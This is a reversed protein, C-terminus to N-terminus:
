SDFPTPDEYLSEEEYLGNEKFFEINDDTLRLPKGDDGMVPCGDKDLLYGNEDMQLTMSEDSDEMRHQNNNDGEKGIVSTRLSDLATRKLRISQNLQSANSQNENAEPEEEIVVKQSNTFTPEKRLSRRGGMMYAMMNDDTEDGPRDFDEYGRIESINVDFKGEQGNEAEGKKQPQEEMFSDLEMESEHQSLEQLPQGFYNNKLNNFFKDKSDLNNSQKSLSSANSMFNTNRSATTDSNMFAHEVRKEITDVKSLYESQHRRQRVVDEKILDLEYRITDMRSNMSENLFNIRRISDIAEQNTITTSNSNQNKEPNQKLSLVYAEMKSMQEKLLDVRGALEKKNSEELAKVIACEAKMDKVDKGLNDNSQKNNTEQINEKLKKIEEEINLNAKKMEAIESDLKERAEKEKSEKEKGNKSEKIKEIEQELLLLKVNMERVANNPIKEENDDQNEPNHNKADDRSELVSLRVQLDNLKQLVDINGKTIDNLEGDINGIKQGVKGYDLQIQEGLQGFLEGM